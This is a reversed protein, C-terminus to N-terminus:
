EVYIYIYALTSGHMVHVFFLHHVPSIVVVICVVIFVIVIVDVDERRKGREQSFAHLM